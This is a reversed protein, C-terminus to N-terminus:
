FWKISFDILKQKLNNYPPMMLDTASPLNQKLISKKNSFEEFGYIGKSKGIGSNNIGGFPLNSNSYHMASHNICVGGSSTNNIIKKINKKNRSYIYLALPKEKNNIFDIVENISEYEYLPLIPGFIEEHNVLSKESVNEIITPEIFNEKENYNGGYIIKSGNKISDDLMLKVRNFHKKNVIRCYSPSELADNNFYEKIKSILAKQFKEKISKHVLLYDPAICIQGNNIFKSWAIRKAANEISSTNDVITPSKGGLELTVSALIKAAAKMVIKGIVPSGTFYIHNFPIELLSKAVDPGGLIVRVENKEFTKEIILKIVKSTNETIESPKLVICNGSSIASILPILSLNIPFNWPTIILVVGKAEHKIYSNSGLLSVPTKVKKDKVWNKLNKINHKIESTVPYIETLDIESPHKKFDDFLAKHIQSKHNILVKKLKELKSIREKYSTNGVRNQNKKLELFVKKLESPIM